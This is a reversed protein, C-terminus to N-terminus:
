LLMKRKIFFHNKGGQNSKCQIWDPDDNFCRFQKLNHDHLYIYDCFRKAHLVSQEREKIECAGPGDVFGLDFKGLDPYEGYKCLVINYGREKYPAYFKEITEMSHVKMGAVRLLETSLGCGYELVTKIKYKLILKYIFMWDQPRFGSSGGWDIRTGHAM